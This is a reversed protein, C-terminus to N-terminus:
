GPRGGRSSGGRSGRPDDWDGRSGGPRGRGGSAGRGGDDEFDRRPYRSGGGRPYDRGGGSGGGGRPYDRGDGRSGVRSQRLDDDPRRSRPSRGQNRRGEDDWRGTGMGSRGGRQIDRVVAERRRVPSAFVRSM